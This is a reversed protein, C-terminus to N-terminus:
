NAPTMRSCTFYMEIAHRRAMNFVPVEGTYYFEDCDFGSGPHQSEFAEIVLDRIKSIGLHTADGTRAVGDTTSEVGVFIAFELVQRLDYGGERAAEGSQYGVFAFPAYNTFKEGGGNAAGVQHKWIDATAFVPKEDDGYTLAKLTDALWQELRAILGGDNM